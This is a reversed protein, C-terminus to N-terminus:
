DIVQMIKRSSRRLDTAAINSAIIFGYNDGNNKVNVDDILDRNLDFTEINLKLRPKILKKIKEKKIGLELSIM